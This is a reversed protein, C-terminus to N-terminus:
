RPAVSKEVFIFASGVEAEGNDLMMQMRFIFPDEPMDSIPIPFIWWETYDHDYNEDDYEEDQPFDFISKRPSHYTEGDIEAEYRFYISGPDGDGLIIGDIDLQGHCLFLTSDPVQPVSAEALTTWDRGVPVEHALDFYTVRAEAVDAHRSNISYPSHSLKLRGMEDNEGVQISVWYQKDFKLDEFPEVEGLEANLLGGSVNKNQMETWLSEGGDPQDYMRFTVDYNGDALPEGDEMLYSQFNITQAPASLAFFLIYLLSSITKFRM